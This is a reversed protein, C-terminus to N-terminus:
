AVEDLVLAWWGYTPDIRRHTLHFAYSTAPRIDLQLVVNGASASPYPALIDYLVSTDIEIVVSYRPCDTRVIDSWSVESCDFRRKWRHRLVLDWSIDLVAMVNFRVPGLEHDVWGIFCHIGHENPRIIETRYLAM